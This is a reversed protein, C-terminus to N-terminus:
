DLARKSAEDPVRKAEPSEWKAETHDVPHAVHERLWSPPRPPSTIPPLHCLSPGPHQANEIFNSTEMEFSAQPGTQGYVPYTIGVPGYHSALLSQSVQKYTFTHTSTGIHQGSKDPLFDSILGPPPHRFRTAGYVAEGYHSQPREPFQLCFIHFPQM